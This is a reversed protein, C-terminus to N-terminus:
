ILLRLPKLRQVSQLQRPTPPEIKPPRVSRHRKKRPYPRASKPLLRVYKDRKCEGFLPTCRRRDRCTAPKRSSHRSDQRVTRRVIKLSAAYSVDAPDRGTAALDRVTMLGLLWVGLVIWTLEAECRSPTRSRLTRRETTQKTTRYFVEVGWRRDYFAEAEADQLEAEDLVSTVLYVPRKGPKEVVILRLEIPPRGADQKDTPWLYVTRGPTEGALRLGDILRVNGGVRMLFHRGKALLAACLDYGVFGADAVVLADGPLEDVIDLLHTRESAAGPGVRFAWPLGLRLCYLVTLSMQPMGDPKGVDGCARQNALTRPCALRSGDVAFAKWRSGGRERLLGAMVERLRVVVRPVLREGERILAEIWANYSSGRRWAPRITRLFTEVVRFREVAEKPEAWAM